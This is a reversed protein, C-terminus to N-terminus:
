SKLLKNLIEHLTFESNEIDSKYEDIIKKTQNLMTKFIFDIDVDRSPVMYTDPFLYGELPYYIDDDLIIEPLFDYTQMLTKIYEKDTVLEIVEDYTNNTNTSIITAIKRMNIGEKFTIMFSDVVTNKANVMIDVIKEVDMTKNLDYSAAQMNNIKNLKLYMMFVDKNKILNNDYLIESINEMSSGSPITIVISKSDNKDVSSLNNTYYIYMCTPILIIILLVVLLIKKM